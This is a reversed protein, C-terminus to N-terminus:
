AGPVGSCKESQVARVTHSLPVTSPAQPRSTVVSDRNVQTFSLIGVTGPGGNSHICVLEEVTKLLDIPFHVQLNFICLFQVFYIASGDTM